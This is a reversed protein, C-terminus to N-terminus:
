KSWKSKISDKSVTNTDMTVVENAKQRGQMWADLAVIEHGKAAKIGLKKAAYEAVSQASDMTTYNFTGVFKQARRGLSDRANLEKVIAKRMSDMTVVEAAEEAKDAAEEAKTEAEAAVVPDGTEAAESALEAAEQAVVAAEEAVVAASEAAAKEEETMEGAEDKTEKDEEDQTVFLSKLANREEETLAAIAAKLEELTMNVGLNNSDITYHDLVVVDKGTRGLDVLALHNPRINRQIADYRQGNFEGSIYEYDNKYGLSLDVKGNKIKNILSDSVIRLNAKVYPPDILVQEGVWGQVGKKEAPTAEKGILEHDDILPINKFLDVAKELEEAPRYVRVIKNAREDTLGIDRGLYDFVGEKTIPNDKVEIWGNNDQVRKSM